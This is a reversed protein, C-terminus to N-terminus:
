PKRQIGLAPYDAENLRATALWFDLLRMCKECLWVSLLPKEGHHCRLIYVAHDKCKICTM